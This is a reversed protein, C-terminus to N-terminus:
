PHQNIFLIFRPSDRIATDAIDIAQPLGGAGRAMGEALTSRMQQYPQYQQYEELQQRV